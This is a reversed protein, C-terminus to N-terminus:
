DHPPYQHLTVACSWRMIVENRATRRVTIRQVANRQLPTVNKPIVKTLNLHIYKDGSNSRSRTTRQHWLTPIHILTSLYMGVYEYMYCSFVVKFCMILFSLPLSVQDECYYYSFHARLCVLPNVATLTCLPPCFDETM